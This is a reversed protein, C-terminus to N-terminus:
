DESVLELVIPKGGPGKEAIYRLLQGDSKRFWYDVPLLRFLGVLKLNIIAHVAEVQKGNIKLAETGKKSASFKVPRGGWYGILVWYEISKNDSAAFAQLGFTPEYWPLSGLKHKKNIEGKESFGKIEIIDGSRKASIETEEEPDSNSYEWTLISFNSDLKCKTKQTNGQTDGESVTVESIELVYGNEAPEIRCEVMREEGEISKKYILVDAFVPSSCLCLILIMIARKVM